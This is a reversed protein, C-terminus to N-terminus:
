KLFKLKYQTQRILTCVNDIENQLYSDDEDCCETRHKEIWEGLDELLKLPETYPTYRPPFDPILGYDGQWTEAITDALDVIGDYFDNLAKHTAYSRTQLHMVHAATRAHFLRMVLEGIM